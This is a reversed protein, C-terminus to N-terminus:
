ETRPQPSPEDIMISEIKDASEDFPETEWSTEAHGLDPHHTFQHHAMSSMGEPVLEELGDEAVIFISEPIVKPEDRVANSETWHTRTMLPTTDPASSDTRFNNKNKQVIRIANDHKVDIRNREELQL